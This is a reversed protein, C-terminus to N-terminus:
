ADPTLTAETPPIGVLGFAVPSETVDLRLADEMWHLHVHSEQTGDLISPALQYRGVPLWPFRFHFIATAIQGPEIVPPALATSLFTNDGFLNQGRDDRFIFGIIPREVRQSALCAIRMEVEAGGMFRSVPADQGPPHFTLGLVQAGGEGHQPADPRFPGVEVVMPADFTATDAADARQEAATDRAVTAGGYPRLLDTQYALAVEEAPGSLRAQGQDLWIARQCISSMEFPNQSVFALAGGAACFDRMRQRSKEQFAADGVSLIEDIVLIDADVHVAVAFALRAHMGSSYERVPRDFFAGIDAFAEILPLKDQVQQPTLGLTAANLTANERGTFDPNFGAGLELIGAVRGTRTVDGGSLTLTGYLLQLLTSKGSGNRGVIGLAEGKRLTLDLAQLAWFPAGNQAGAVLNMVQQLPRTTRRYCKSVGRAQLVVGDEMATTM